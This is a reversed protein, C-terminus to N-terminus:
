RTLMVKRTRVGDPTELRVVYMGSPMTRGAADARDWAYPYRGAPLIGRELVRVIRGRADVIALTVAGSRPLLAEFAIGAVSPNPRPATLALVTPAGGGGGNLSTAPSASANGHVDRALM